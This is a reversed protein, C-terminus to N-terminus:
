NTLNRIQREILRAWGSATMTKTNVGFTTIKPQVSQSAESQQGFLYAYSSVQLNYRAQTAETPDALAIKLDSVVRKGSPLDIVIDVQGHVEVEGADTTVVGDIPKEVRVSDAAQIQKWLESDTFEDVIDTFFDWLKDRDDDDLAPAADYVIDDFVRSVTDDRGIIKAESVGKSILETLTDHIVSGIEDPGLTDFPLQLKQSANNSETHISDGLLHAVAHEAPNDTLQLFESSKLFRPIWPDLAGPEPPTTIVAPDPTDTQKTACSAHIDADNVGITIEGQATSLEYTERDGEYELGRRLSEIWRDRTMDYQLGDPLPM